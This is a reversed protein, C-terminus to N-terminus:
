GTKPLNQMVYFTEVHILDFKNNGLEKIIQKKMEPNNHGVLLFPIFSVGSKLINRARPNTERAFAEKIAKLVDRRLEFNARLCLERVADKIKAVDITRM